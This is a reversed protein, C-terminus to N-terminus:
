ALLDADQLSLRTAADEIRGPGLEDDGQTDLAVADDRLAASAVAPLQERPRDPRARDADLFEIPTTPEDQLAVRRVPPRRLMRELADHELRDRVLRGDHRPEPGALHRHGLERGREGKLRGAGD